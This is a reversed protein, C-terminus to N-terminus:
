ASQYALRTEFGGNSGLKSYYLYHVGDHTMVMPNAGDWLPADDTVAQGWTGDWTSQFLRWFVDSTRGEFFINWEKGDHITCPNAAAVSYLTGEKPPVLLQKSTLGNTIPNFYWLGAKPLGPWVATIVTGTDVDSRYLRTHTPIDDARGTEKFPGFPSDGVARYLRLNQFSDGKCYIAQFKDNVYYVSFDELYGEPMVPYPHHKWNRSIV